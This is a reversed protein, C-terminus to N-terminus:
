PMSSIKIFTANNSRIRLLAAYSIQLTTALINGSGVRKCKLSCQLKSTYFYQTYVTLMFLAENRTKARSKCMKAERRM